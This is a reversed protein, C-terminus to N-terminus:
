DEDKEIKEIADYYNWHKPLEAGLPLECRPFFGLFEQLMMELLVIRMELEKIKKSEDM